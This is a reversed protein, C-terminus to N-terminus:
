WFCINEDNLQNIITCHQKCVFSPNVLVCLIFNTVYFGLTKLFAKVYIRLQLVRKIISFCLSYLPTLYYNVSM